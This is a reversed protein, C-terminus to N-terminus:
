KDLGALYGEIQEQEAQSLMEVDYEGKSIKDVLHKIYEEDYAYNGLTEKNVEIWKFENWKYLRSPLYDVRLFTDGKVPDAPFETGFGSQAARADQYVNDAIIAPKFPPNIPDPDGPERDNYVTDLEKALVKGKEFFEEQTPIITTENLAQEVEEDSATGIWELASDAADLIDDKPEEIDPIQQALTDARTMEHSHAAFLRDRDQQLKAMDSKLQTLEDIGSVTSAQRKRERAWVITQEGALILVLALPDFVFVILIIVYRVARELLNADPNDGYILAAIYKIPGVEAEVKRVESAIPAREERLKAISATITEIEKQAVVIEAQIAKRDKAQSKRTNYARTAGKADDTRGLLENVQSDLQALSAKASTINDKQVQIADQATAIKADIIDVKATVDGLPVGQDSHAKALFGYTGMSTIFMLIVIAPVLYAKFQWNAEKWHAHLWVTATIKGLELAGGMIVVPWFAAAFIATLGSVSYFASVASILIAVVLVFIGFIM